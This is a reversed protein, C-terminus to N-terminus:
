RGLASFKELDVGNPVVMIPCRAGMRRAWRALYNSIATISDARRFVCLLRPGLLRLRYNLSDLDDGEQLTLLFPVTPFRQKFLAAAMGAQNAMIAWILAYPRTQHQRVAQRYAGFPYFYKSWFNKVDASIIEFEFEPLRDTIEKVAVEAGGIFPFYALSFILIRPPPM